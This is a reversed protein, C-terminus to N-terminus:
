MVSPFLCLQLVRYLVNSTCELSVTLLYDLYTKLYFSSIIVNRNFTIVSERKEAGTVSGAAAASQLRYQGDATIQPNFSCLLVFGTTM